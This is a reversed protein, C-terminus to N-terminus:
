YGEHQNSLVISDVNSYKLEFPSILTVSHGADALEKVLASGIVFHSKYHMPFVALIKSASLCDVLLFIVSILLM